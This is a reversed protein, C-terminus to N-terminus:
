LSAWLCSERNISVAMYDESPDARFRGQILGLGGVLLRLVSIWVRFFSGRYGRFLARMAIGYLGQMTLLSGM